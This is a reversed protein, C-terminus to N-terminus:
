NIQQILINTMAFNEKEKLNKALMRTARKLILYVLENRSLMYIIELKTKMVRIRKM